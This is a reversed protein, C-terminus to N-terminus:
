GRLDSGIDVLQEVASEPGSQGAQMHLSAVTPQVRLAPGDVPGDAVCPDMQLTGAAGM